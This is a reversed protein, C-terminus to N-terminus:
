LVIMGRIVGCKPSSVAVTVVTGPAAAVVWELLRQTEPTSYGWAFAASGYGPLHEIEQKARGAVVEFGAGGGQNGAALEVLLPKAIKAQKAHATINTPLYGQNHLVASLKYLRRSGGARGAMSEAPDGCGMAGADCGPAGADSGPAGAVGGAGLPQASLGTIRLRPAMAAHQLTFATAKHCEGELLEPPCNQYVFKPAWGGLEVAGLQPHEFRRWRVFGRGALVRDNWRLMALQDKERQAHTLEASEKPKLKPLGAHQAMDWLETALPLAGLLDYAWDMWSGVPPRDKDVTFEEYISWMPYGMTQMGLEGLHKMAALDARPLKDDPKACHSRLIMGGHTHHSMAAFINPHGHMFEVLTRIEPESAPFEGAGRQIHEPAWTGPYNRNFDLGWKPPAAQIEVGNYERVLGETYIRYYTGGSEGPARRVMLRDDHPSVKWSGHPDVVRMALIQGDGDIDAPYLGPKEEVEPYPRVSSRLTEPTTLYVESGDVAVRPIVYFAQEDLLRTAEPDSGYRSLLHWITYLATACGTVEGAHHNADIHYAPKEAAPGTASATLECCLIDRGQYSRGIPYVRCLEPYTRQCEALYDVIEQYV